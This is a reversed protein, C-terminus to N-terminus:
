GGRGPGFPFVACRPNHAGPAAPPVWYKRLEKPNAPKHRVETAEDVLWQCMREGLRPALTDRLKALSVFAVKQAVREDLVASCLKWTANFLWPRRL